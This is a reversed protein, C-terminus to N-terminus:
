QVQDGWDAVDKPKPVNIARDLKLRFEEYPLLPAEKDSIARSSQFVIDDDITELRQPLDLAPALFVNQMRQKEPIDPTGYAFRWFDVFNPWVPGRDGELTGHALYFYFSTESGLLSPLSDAWCAYENGSEYMCDFGWCETLKPGLDPGLVRTIERMLTGGGSHCALVFREVDSSKLATASTGSQQQQPLLGLIKDLYNQVGSQGKALDGLGLSGSKADQYNCWPAILVVDQGSNDVSERLQNNGSATDPGFINKRYDKVYWGHLWLIVNLPPKVTKKPLYVITPRVCDGDTVLTTGRFAPDDPLAVLKCDSM